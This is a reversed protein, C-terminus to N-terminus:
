ASKVTYDEEFPVVQVGEATIVKVTVGKFDV